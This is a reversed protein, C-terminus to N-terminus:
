MKKVEVSTPLSHDAECGEQKVGLSIVGPLRQIPPQTSGSGTQVVHLISFEQGWQSEWELGETTWGTAISVASDRSVVGKTDKIEHLFVYIM